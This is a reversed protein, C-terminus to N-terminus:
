LPIDHKLRRVETLAVELEAVRAQLSNHLDLIRLGVQIRAFLEDKDYPKVLYDDAGARLGEVINEKAGRATLLIIYITKGMERVRRAVQLGDMGPMMWDLLCIASGQEARLAAMAEHGDQTIISRFGWKHVLSSVLERSVSDDEAIIVPIGASRVMNALPAPQAKTPLPNTDQWPPSFSISKM